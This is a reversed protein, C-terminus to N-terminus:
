PLLRRAELGLLDFLERRQRFKLTITSGALEDGIRQLPRSM